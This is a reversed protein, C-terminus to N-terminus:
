MNMASDQLTILQIKLNTHDRYHSPDYALIM